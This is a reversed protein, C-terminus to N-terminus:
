LEKLPKVKTFCIVSTSAFIMFFCVIFERLRGFYISDKSMEAREVSCVVIADDIIGFKRRVINDLFM